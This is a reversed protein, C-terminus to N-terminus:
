TMLWMAIDNISMNKWFFSRAMDCHCLWAQLHELEKPHHGVHQLVGLKCLRDQEKRVVEMHAHPVPYPKQHVPVAGPILELDMKKGTYHGIKGSFLEPQKWLVGSLLWAQQESLLHKQQKAVLEVDVMEYISETITKKENHFSAFIEEDDDFNDYNQVTEILSAYHNEYFILTEDHNHKWFCQNDNIRLWIGHADKALLRTRCHHRTSM